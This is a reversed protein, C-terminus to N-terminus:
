FNDYQRVYKRVPLGTRPSIREASRGSTVLEAQIAKFKDSNLNNGQILSVFGSCGHVNGNKTPQLIEENDRTVMTMLADEHTDRMNTYADNMSLTKLFNTYLSSKWVESLWIKDGEFVVMNKVNTDFVKTPTLGYKEELKNLIHINKEIKGKDERKALIFLLKYKDLPFMREDLGRGQVMNPHTNIGQKYAWLCDDVWTRCSSPLTVYKNDETIFGIGWFFWRDNDNNKIEADLIIKDM